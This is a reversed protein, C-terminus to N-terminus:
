PSFDEAQAKLMDFAEFIPLELMNAIVRVMRAIRMQDLQKSLNNFNISTRELNEILAKNDQRLNTNDDYLIQNDERLERMRENMPEMESFCRLTTFAATTNALEYVGLKAAILQAGGIRAFALQERESIKAATSRRAEQSEYLDKGRPTSRRPSGIRDPSAEYIGM